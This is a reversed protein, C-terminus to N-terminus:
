PNIIVKIVGDERADYRKYWEQAEELSVHQSVIKGPRINGDLIAQRLFLDYRKVPCRGMGVSVGKGWLTGLPLSHVGEQAESSRAGSDLSLFTGILGISGTPEIIEALAHIVQSSNEKNVDHFDLAQYGVADIGSLVGNMREEGARFLDGFHQEKFDEITHKVNTMTFNVPIAGLSEALKLRDEHYDVIFIPGSGRLNKACMASLLGVPGAGYIITSHGMGVDALETAHWATSLVDSLMVFDDEYEDGPDGPLKLANFDAYPVLVKEAQGGTYPALEAYGYSAGVGDPNMTLCANTYGRVCNFCSGCAINFPLVVRDGPKLQQVGSGVAEIIGLIEHGLVTGPQVEGRGEYMHLDRGCIGASTVKVIAETPKTIKPDSVEEVVVENKGKYVLAKV